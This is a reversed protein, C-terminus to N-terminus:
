GELVTAMILGIVQSLKDPASRATRGPGDIECGWVLGKKAGRVDKRTHRLLGADAYTVVWRQVLDDLAVRETTM